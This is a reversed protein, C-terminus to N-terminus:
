SFPRFNRETLGTLNFTARLKPDPVNEIIKNKIEIFFSELKQTSYSKRDAQVKVLSQQIIDQVFDTKITNLSEEVLLALIEPNLDAKLSDIADESLRERMLKVLNQYLSSKIPEVNEKRRRYYDFDSQDKRNRVIHIILGETEEGARGARGAINWYDRAKIRESRGSIWRSCSHIIVTRIPLNVGQALTNTAIIIQFNKQRFDTEIAKRLITPLKGHHIAIGRKLCQTVYHKEGLWEKALLFSRTNESIQFINPVGQGISIMLALRKQLAKAVYEVFNAQSCFILISGLESFKISLEAAIQSKNTMDPFLERKLRGTKPNTYEFVEQKIVGPIYEGMNESDEEPYINENRVFQISGTQHFWEFKAYKQIAPRYNSIILDDTQSANFWKVFDELTEDSIVASLVLFRANILLKKLRTILLEFKIGRREETIIQAEDLVILQVNELFDPLVRFILDLKEPTVILVDTKKFLFEEFDDSEYTGIITSVRYGLNSLLNSFTQQLESILALYPAIYVCKAGQNNVLTHVIAMEAIRTKGASTPMRVIKNTNSSLLGSKLATIQSEWLESISRSKLINTGLGRALLKLYRPWRPKDPLLGSLLTWTSKRKMVCILCIISQILNTEEVLSISTYLKKANELNDIARELSSEIGGMLFNLAYSFGKGIFALAMKEILQDKFDSKSEIQVKKNLSNLQILRRQIFLSCLDLLTPNELKLLPNVIKKAICMANAQYGAIEYNVAANILATKESTSEKLKALAEWLQANIKAVESYKDIVNPTNKAIKELEITLFIANKVIKPAFYTWRYQPIQKLIENLTAKARIQAFENKFFSNQVYLLLNFSHNKSKSM